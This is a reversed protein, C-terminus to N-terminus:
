GARATVLLYEAVIEGDVTFRRTVEDRAAAVAPAAAEPLHNSLYRVVFDSGGAAARLQPDYPLLVRECRIQDSYPALRQRATEEVGWELEPDPFPFEPGDADRIGAALEGMFSDPPWATFAVVGGTRCVRFLEKAMIEPRPAVVAAFASLVHTFAGDEFPLEEVDAVRWEVAAGEQRSREIGRAVQQPSLDTAVVDARRRAAEIAVNGDGAGVDLVRDGEAVGSADVIVQAAPALVRALGFYEGGDYFERQTQKIDIEGM